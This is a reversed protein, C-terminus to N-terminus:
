VLAMLSANGGAATVNISTSVEEVLWDRRYRGQSDAVQMIPIPGPLNALREILAAAAPPEILVAAFDAQQPLDHRWAIRDAVLPPLPGFPAPRAGPWIITARNGAALASGIQVALGAATAPVLLVHGRPHLAYRNTEGVPGPLDLAGGNLSEAMAAEVAASGALGSGRLWEALAVAAADGGGNGALGALPARDVLRGLYLPGGAKPGTGSLGRGGFPQVGVVAGIINRNIYINGAAARATM